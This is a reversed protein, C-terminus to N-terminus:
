TVRQGPQEDNEFADFTRAFRGRRAPERGIEFGSTV